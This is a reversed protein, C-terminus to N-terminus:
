KTSEYWGNSEGNEPFDFAAEPIFIGFEEILWHEADSQFNFLRCFGGLHENSSVDVSWKGKIYRISVHLKM